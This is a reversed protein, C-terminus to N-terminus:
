SKHAGQSPISGLHRHRRQKNSSHMVMSAVPADEANGNVYSVNLYSNDNNNSIDQRIRMIMPAVDNTANEKKNNILKAMKTYSAEWLFM